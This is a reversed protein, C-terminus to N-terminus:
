KHYPTGKFIESARYLQEILVIRAIQHTFTLRSLSILADANLDKPLGEAGGIVLCLRAQKYILNSFAISDVVEGNPDLGIVYKERSALAVLEEDTKAWQTQLEISGKLRKTYESFCAELWSEKNKGVSILQIKLM